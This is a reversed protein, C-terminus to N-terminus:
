ADTEMVNAFKVGVEATGRESAPSKSCVVEHFSDIRARLEVWSCHKEWIVDQQGGVSGLRSPSLFGTGM